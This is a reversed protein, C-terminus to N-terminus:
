SLIRPKRAWGTMYRWGAGRKSSESIINQIGEFTKECAGRALECRLLWRDWLWSGVLGSIAAANEMCDIVDDASHEKAEVDEVKQSVAQCKMWPGVPLYILTLHRDVFGARELRSHWKITPFPDYGLSRLINGFKKSKALGLPGANVINSDILDFELYGGPKLIRFCENLCSDWEDRGCDSKSKLITYLNRASILDFHNDHFPLQDLDDVVLKQHNSPGSIKSIPVQYLSKPIVTYVKAEPYELACHWAWDCVDQGGLDLILPRELSSSQRESVVSSAQSMYDSLPATVLRGIKLYKTAMIIWTAPSIQRQAEMELDRKIRDLNHPEIEAKKTMYSLFQKKSGTSANGLEYQGQLQAQYTHQFSIRQSQLAEYRPMRHVFVDLHNSHAILNRFVCYYLSELYEAELSPCTFQHSIDFDGLFSEIEPVSPILERKRDLNTLSKDLALEEEGRSGFLGSTKSISQQVTVWINTRDLNTIKKDCRGVSMSCKHGTIKGNLIRANIPSVHSQCSKDRSKQNRLTQQEFHPVENSTAEPTGVQDQVDDRTLPQTYFQEATTSTPLDFHWTHRIGPSWATSFFHTPSPIKLQFLDNGLFRKTSSSAVSNDRLMCPLNRQAESVRPAQPISDLFREPTDDSIKHTCSLAKLTEMADPQLQVSGDWREKGPEAIDETDPTAPTAPISNRTMQDSSPSNDLSPPESPSLEDVSYSLNTNIKPFRQFNSSSTKIASPEMKMYTMNDLEKSFLPLVSTTTRNDPAAASRALHHINQYIFKQGRNKTKPTAEDVMFHCVNHSSGKDLPFNPTVCATSLTPYIHNTHPPASTHLISPPTPQNEQPAPSEPTFSPLTTLLGLSIDDEQDHLQIFVESASDPDHRRRYDYQHPIPQRKTFDSVSSPIHLIAM